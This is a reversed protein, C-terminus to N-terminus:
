NRRPNKRLDNPRIGQKAFFGYLARRSVKLEAAVNKIVGQHKRILRIADTKTLEVPSRLKPARAFNREYVIDDASIDRAKCFLFARELTNKLERVNGSWPCGYLKRYAGPTLGRVNRQHRVNLERLFHASIAPVDETRERLPPVHLLAVAMRYYLDSRFLGQSVLTELPVNSASIVHIDLHVSKRGGIPTVSHDQLFQLLKAQVQSSLNGVEDLFLTGNDAEQFLGPKARDAGTFAGKEHGFLLSEMLTAPLTSCDVKVFKGKSREGKSHIFRALVEKGTGTEGTILVTTSTQGIKEAQMRIAAMTKSPGILANGGEQYEQLLLSTEREKRVATEHAQKLNDLREKIGTVEELQHFLLHEDGSDYYYCGLSSLLFHKHLAAKFSIFPAYFAQAAKRDTVSIDLSKVICSHGQKLWFSLWTRGRSCADFDTYSFILKGDREILFTRDIRSFSYEGIPWPSSTVKELYLPFTQKKLLLANGLTAPGLIYGNHDAWDSSDPPKDGIVLCPAQGNLGSLTISVKFDQTDWDVPADLTLLQGLSETVRWELGEPGATVNDGVILGSLSAGNEGFDKHFHNKWNGPEQSVLEKLAQEQIAKPFPTLIESINKGLYTQAEKKLQLGFARNFSIIRGDLNTSFLPKRYNEPVYQVFHSAMSIMGMLRIDSVRYLRLNATPILSYYEEPENRFPFISTKIGFPTANNTPLDPDASFSNINAAEPVNFMERINGLLKLNRYFYILANPGYPHCLSDLIRGEADLLIFLRDRSLALLAPKLKDNEIHNQFFTM